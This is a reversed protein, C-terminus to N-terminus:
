SRARRVKPFRSTPASTTGHPRMPSPVNADLDTTLAPLPGTPSAAPSKLPSPRSSRATAFSFTFVTETRRAFPGPVKPWRDSRETALAGRDITTPSRFASPFSSMTTEFLPEFETENNRPAPSPVNPGLSSTAAPVVGVISARASKSRSPRRSRATTLSAVFVSVIRVPLDSAAATETLGDDSSKPRCTSPAGVTDLLTITVFALEATRLTELTMIEPM